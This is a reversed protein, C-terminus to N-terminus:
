GVHAEPINIIEESTLKMNVVFSFEFQGVQNLNEVGELGDVLYVDKGDTM